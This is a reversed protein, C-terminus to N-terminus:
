ANLTKHKHALRSKKRSGNNPHLVGKKVAKDIKSYAESMKVEVEQKLETTPNAAYAEVSSFYKKMLTKVASKYAKNRLRNREAIQARKLASKTNAM